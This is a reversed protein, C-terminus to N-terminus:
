AGVKERLERIAGAVRELAPPTEAPAMDTTPNQLTELSAEAEFRFQNFGHAIAMELASEICARAKESDGFRHYGQGVSLLYGTKMHPPLEEDALQVRYLEFLPEAGCQSAIELLNLTAAWRIFQEQATTSLILYADRAASYVGLELFSVAIDSLIRDRTTDNESLELARYAIHIATEHDGRHHSVLARDHLARSRVDRADPGVASAIVGDFIHEAKPLNGRLVAIGGEAVRSNLVGIMDNAAVAVRSAEAIVADAADLQGLTRYCQGLRLHAAICAESDERPHLRGLLSVYVDAALRWRAEFELSRAFAMLPATVAHVNPKPSCVKSAIRQLLRHAPSGESLQGIAERTLELAEEDVERADDLWADVLRLTLLSAKALAWDRSDERVTALEEFFALHRLPYGTGFM